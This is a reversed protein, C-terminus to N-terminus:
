STADQLFWNNNPGDWIAEKGEPTTPPPVLTTHPPLYILEQDQNRPFEYSGIFRNHEGWQYGMVMSPPISLVQPDSTTEDTM